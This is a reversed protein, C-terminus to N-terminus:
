IKLEVFIYNFNRKNRSVQVNSDLFMLSIIITLFPRVKPHNHLWELAELFYELQIDNVELVGEYEAYALALTVYGRAALLAARREYLVGPVWAFPGRGEPVFLTAKLRGDRIDYRSVQPHDIHRETGVHALFGKLPVQEDETGPGVHDPLLFIDIHWTRAFYLHFTLAAKSKTAEKPTLPELYWILGMPEVGEYSGGHSTMTSVDIKGADNAVYHAYSQYIVIEQKNMRAVLTYKIRPTLGTAVISQPQDALAQSPSITLNISSSVRNMTKQM